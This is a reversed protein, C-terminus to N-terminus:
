KIPLKDMFTIGDLHDSEHQLVAAYLGSARETFEKGDVGQAKVIVKRARLVKRFTGPFSLCGEEIIQESKASIIVPNIFIKFEGLAIYTTVFLRFNLGVQPAALGLGKNEHLTEGMNKSIDQLEETGFMHTPVPKVAFRLWDDPYTLIKYSMAKFELM